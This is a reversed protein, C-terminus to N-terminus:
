AFNTSAVRHELAADFFAEKTFSPDNAIEELGTLHFFNEKKALTEIHSLASFTQVDKGDVKGCIILLNKESFYKDYYEAADSIKRITEKSLMNIDLVVKIYFKLPHHIVATISGGELSQNKQQGDM